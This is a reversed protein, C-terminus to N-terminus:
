IRPPVQNQFTLSLEVGLPNNTYQYSLCPMKYLCGVLISVLNKKTIQLTSDLVRVGQVDYYTIVTILHVYYTNSDLHFSGLLKWEVQMYGGIPVICINFPNDTYLPLKSMDLQSNVFSKSSEMQYRSAEIPGRQGKLQGGCNLRSPQEMM